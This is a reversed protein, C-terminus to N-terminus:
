PRVLATAFVCDRRSTPKIARRAFLRRMAPSEAQTVGLVDGRQLLKATAEDTEPYDMVTKGNIEWLQSLGRNALVDIKFHELDEIEYKDLLIQNEANFQSKPVKRDFILIGGCHKSIYNKKGLLKRAIREAEQEHGPVVDELKFGRGLDKHQAGLRKCAERLASREKFMVFNSVRASQQPWNDYIRQMVIIQAWHPFDLDIDPLDDRKSQTFRALLINEVM